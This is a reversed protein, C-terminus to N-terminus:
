KVPLYKVLFSVVINIKTREIEMQVKRRKPLSFFPPKTNIPCLSNSEVPFDLSLIHLGSRLFKLTLAVELFTMGAGIKMPISELLFGYVRSMVPSGGSNVGYRIRPPLSSNPIILPERLTQFTADYSSNLFDSKWSLLKPFLFLCAM